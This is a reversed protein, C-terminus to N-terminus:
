PQSTLILQVVPLSLNSATSSQSLGFVDFAAILSNHTESRRYMKIIIFRLNDKFETIVQRELNM